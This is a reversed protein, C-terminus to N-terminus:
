RGCSRSSESRGQVVLRDFSVVELLKQEVCYVKM